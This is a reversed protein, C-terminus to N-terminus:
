LEWVEGSIQEVVRVRCNKHALVSDRSDAGSVAIEVAEWKEFHYIRKLQLRVVAATSDSGLQVISMVGV